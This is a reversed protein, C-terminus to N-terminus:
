TFLFVIKYDVYLLEEHINSVIAFLFTPRRFVFGICDVGAMDLGWDFVFPFCVFVVCFFFCLFLVFFYYVALFIGVM